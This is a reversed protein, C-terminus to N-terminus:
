IYDDPLEYGIYADLDIDYTTTSDPIMKDTGSAKTCNTLNYEVPFYYNVKYKRIEELFLKKDFNYSILNEFTSSTELSVRWLSLFWTKIRSSVQTHM